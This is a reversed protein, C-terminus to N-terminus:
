EKASKKAKKRDEILMMIKDIWEPVQEILRDVASSGPNTIPLLRVNEGRCVLFAIPTINVGAGTGGGFPLDAQANKPVFDSGGGAFGFTVKSIPLITVGDPLTIPDGIIANAGIMERIKSMTGNMMDPLPHNM